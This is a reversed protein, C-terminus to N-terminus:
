NRLVRGGRTLDIIRSPRGYMCRGADLVVDVGELIREDVEEISAAAQGGSPNASTSVLPGTRELLELCVRSAPIRVAVTDLGATVYDPVHKKKLIFTTGNMFEKTVYEEQEHSLFTYHRVEELNSFAVSLPTDWGRGKLAYVRKVPEEDLVCGVGYVTDTPYVILGGGSVIKAAESLAEEAPNEPDVTVKNMKVTRHLRM